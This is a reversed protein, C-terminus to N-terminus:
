ARFGMRVVGLVRRFSEMLESWWAVQSDWMLRPNQM